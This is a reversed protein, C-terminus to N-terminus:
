ILLALHDRQMATAFAERKVILSTLINPDQVSARRLLGLRPRNTLRNPEHRRLKQLPLQGSGAYLEFMNKPLTNLLM